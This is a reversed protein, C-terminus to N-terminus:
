SVGIIYIKLDPARLGGGEGPTMLAATVYTCAYMYLGDHSANLEKLASPM